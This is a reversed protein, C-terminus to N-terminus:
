HGNWWPLPEHSARVSVVPHSWSSASSWPQSVERATGRHHTPRRASRSIAMPVGTGPHTSAGAFYLNRYRRHRNSPRFFAMQTLKHSLGHTSGKVLNHQRAWSVPTFTREFKLHRDVDTVGISALRRLVHERALGRLTDWDQRGHEDLHGVPVIATLSDHGAPGGISGLRRACACVPKSQGSPDSGSHHGRSARADDALFLTHPGLEDMEQGDGLLLQRGLM